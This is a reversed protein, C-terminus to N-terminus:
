GQACLRRLRNVARLALRADFHDLAQDYFQRYVPERYPTERMRFHATEVLFITEIQNRFAAELQACEPDPQQAQATSVFYALSAFILLRM